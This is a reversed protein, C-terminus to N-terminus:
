VSLRCNKKLSSYSLIVEEDYIVALDWLRGPLRFPEKVKFEPDLVYLLKAGHDCILLEGNPMFTSGTMRIAGDPTIVFKESKVVKLSRLSGPVNTKGSRVIIEGLKKVKNQIDNLFTDTQLQAFYTKNRKRAPM